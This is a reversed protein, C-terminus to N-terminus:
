APHSLRTFRAIATLGDNVTANQIGLSSRRKTPDGHLKCVLPGTMSCFTRKEACLGTTRLLPTAFHRNILRPASQYPVRATSIACASCWSSRTLTRHCTRQEPEGPSSLMPVGTSEFSLQFNFSAQAKSLQWINEIRSTKSITM